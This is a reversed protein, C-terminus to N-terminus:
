GNTGHSRISVVLEIKSGAVLQVPVSLMLNLPLGFDEVRHGDWDLAHEGYRRVAVREVMPTPRALYGIVPKTRLVTEGDLEIMLRLVGHTSPHQPGLNVIMLGDNEPDREVFVGRPLKVGALPEPLDTKDLTPM